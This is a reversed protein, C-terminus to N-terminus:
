YKPFSDQFVISLSYKNFENATEQHNSVSTDEIDSTIVKDTIETKNVELKVTDWITKNKNLSKNIKDAYNLKKAEKIVSSLIKRYKKYYNNLHLNNCDRCV